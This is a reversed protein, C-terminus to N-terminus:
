LGYVAMNLPDSATGCAVRASIRTAAPIERDFWAVSPLLMAANTEGIIAIDPIAVVEAAGAGVGIDLLWNRLGGVGGTHAICVYLRRIRRTTSAVIQTWAGKTNPTGGPDVSVGDTSAATIGYARMRGGGAGGGDSVSHMLQVMVRAIQTANSCQSRASIRTGAPIPIPIFLRSLAGQSVSASFLIDPVIVVESAAAGLAIDILFRGTGSPWATIWFGCAPAATAAVLQIFSGKANAGGSTVSTASSSASLEGESTYRSGQITSFYGM